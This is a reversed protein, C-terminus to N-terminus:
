EGDEETITPEPVADGTRVRVDVPRREGELDAVIREVTREAEAQAIGELKDVLRDVGILGPLGIGADEVSDPRYQMRLTVRSADAEETEDAADPGDVAEAAADTAPDADAVPEVLWEGRADVRDVLRWEVRSHPRVETVESAVSLSLMKWAVTLEYVTGVSGDGRPVVSELYPSYDAYGPFDLLFEFATAPPVRVVTSAEFRDM